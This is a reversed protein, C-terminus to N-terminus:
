FIMSYGLLLLLNNGICFVQMRDLKQIISMKGDQEPWSPVTDSNHCQLQDEVEVCYKDFEMTPGDKMLSNVWSEHSLFVDPDDVSLAAAM